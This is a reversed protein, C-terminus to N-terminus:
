GARVGTVRPAGRAGLATARHFGNELRAPVPKEAGHTPCVWFLANCRLHFAAQTYSRIRAKHHAACHYHGAAPHRPLNCALRLPIFDHGVLLGHIVM